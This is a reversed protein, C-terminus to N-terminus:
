KTIHYPPLFDEDAGVDAGVKKEKSCFVDAVANVALPVVISGITLSSQFAKAVNIYLEVSFLKFLLDDAVANAIYCLASGLVKINDSLKAFLEEQKERTAINELTSALTIKEGSIVIGLSTLNKWRAADDAGFELYLSQYAKKFSEAKKADDLTTSLQIEILKRKFQARKEKLVEPIYVNGKKKNKDIDHEHHPDLKNIIKQETGFGKKQDKQDKQDKQIKQPVIINENYQDDERKNEKKIEENIKQENNEKNDEKNKQENEKKIEQKDEALGSREIIKIKIGGSKNGANDYNAIVFNIKKEKKGIVGKTKEKELVEKQKEKDKEENNKSVVEKEDNIDNNLEKKENEQTVNTKKLDDSVKEINKVASDKNIEKNTILSGKNEEIIKSEKNEDKFIKQNIKEESEKSEEKLSQEKNKQEQIIVANQEVDSKKEEKIEQKVKDLESSIVNKVNLENEVIDNVGINNITLNINRQDEIHNPNQIKNVDTLDINKSQLEKKNETKEKSGIETKDSYNKILEEQVKNEEKGAIIKDKESIEVIHEKIDNEVIVNKIEKEGKESETKNVKNEENTKIIEETKVEEKKELINGSDNVGIIEKELKELEITNIKILNDIQQKNKELLSIGSEKTNKGDNYILDVAGIDFDFETVSSFVNIKSLIKLLWKIIKKEQKVKGKDNKGGNNKETIDEKVKKESENLEIIKEEIKKSDEILLEIQEKIRKKNEEIIRQREEIESKKQDKINGQEDIKNEKEVDNGDNNKVGFDSKKQGENKEIKENETLVDVITKSEEKKDNNKIGAENATDNINKVNIDEVIVIKANEVASNINGIDIEKNDIKEKEVNNDIKKAVENVISIEKDENKEEKENANEEIVSDSQVDGKKEIEINEQTKEEVKDKDKNENEITLGLISGEKKNTEKDQHTVTSTTDKSVEYETKNVEIKNEKIEEVNKEVKEQKLDVNNIIQENKNKDKEIEKKELVEVEDKDSENIAKDEDSYESDSEVESKPIYKKNGEDEGSYDDDEASIEEITRKKNANKKQSLMKEYEIDYDQKPIQKKLNIQKKGLDNKNNEDNNNYKEGIRKEDEENDSTSNSDVDSENKENKIRENLEIQAQGIEERQNKLIEMQGKIFELRANDDDSINGVDNVVGVNEKKAKKNIIEVEKEFQKYIKEIKSIIESLKELKEEGSLKEADTTEETIEEEIKDKIAEQADKVAVMQNIAFDFSAREEDTLNSNEGLKITIENKKEDFWKYTKEVQANVEILKIYREEESLEEVKKIDDKIESSIKRSIIEQMEKIKKYRHKTICNFMVHEVDKEERRGMVRATKELQWNVKLLEVYREDQNTLKEIKKVANEIDTLDWIGQGAMKEKAVLVSWLDDIMLSQSEEEEEEADETGLKDDIGLEKSWEVMTKAAVKFAALTLILQENSEGTKDGSMLGYMIKDIKKQLQQKVSNFQEKQENISLKKAKNINSLIDEIASSADVTENLLLIGYSSLADSVLTSFEPMTLLNNVEKESKKILDDLGKSSDVPIDNTESLHNFLDSVERFRQQSLIEDFVTAILNEDANNSINKCIVGMLKERLFKNNKQILDDPKEASETILGLRWDKICQSFNSKLWECNNALTNATKTDQWKRGVIEQRKPFSIALKKLLIGNEKFLLSEYNLPQDFDSDIGKQGEGTFLGKVSRVTQSVASLDYGVQKFSSDVGNNEKHFAENLLKFVNFILSAVGVPKDNKLFSSVQPILYKAIRSLEALVFNAKFYTFKQATLAIIPKGIIKVLYVPNSPSMSPTLFEGLWKSLVAFFEKEGDEHNAKDGKMADALAEKFKKILPIFSAVVNSNSWLRRYAVCQFLGISLEILTYKKSWPDIKKAVWAANLGGSMIGIILSSFTKTVEKAKLAEGILSLTFNQLFAYIEGSIVKVADVTKGDKQLEIIKTLKEVCVKLFWHMLLFTEKEYDKGAIKIKSMVQQKFKVKNKELFESLLDSPDDSDGIDNKSHEQIFTAFANNSKLFDVIEKSLDISPDLKSFVANKKDDCDVKVYDNEELFKPLTCLISQTVVAKDHSPPLAGKIDNLVGYVSNGIAGSIDDPALTAPYFKREELFRYVGAEEYEGQKNVYTTFWSADPKMTWSEKKIKKGVEQQVVLLAKLMQTLM